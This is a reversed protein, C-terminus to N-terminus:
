LGFFGADDCLQFSTARTYARELKVPKLEGDRSSMVPLRCDGAPMVLYKTDPESTFSSVVLCERYRMKYYYSIYIKRAVPIKYEAKKGRINVGYRTGCGKGEDVAFTYSRNSFM